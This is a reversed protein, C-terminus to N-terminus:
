TGKPGKKGRFYLVAATAAAAICVITVASVLLVSVRGGDIPELEFYLINGGWCADISRGPHANWDGWGTFNDTRWVYTGHVEVLPIYALDEYHVRQCDYVHEKRLEPDLSSISKNYSDEYDPNQYYNFNWSQGSRVSQAFLFGNPDPDSYSSLIIADWRFSISGLVAETMAIYMIDIGIKACESQLYIAVEKELPYKQWVGLDYQLPTDEFVLEHQVAYSDATCVRVVPSEPTCRYGAAELLANAADIDYRYVEQPTLEYHWEENVSPILTTGETALGDYCTDVITSRNTVMAIAQRIVPDLRSPNPGANNMNVMIFTKDQNPKPGTHTELETLLGELVREEVELYDDGPLQAVDIEGDELATRLATANDFKMIELKDFKVEVGRDAKWHYNPNKVLTIKDGAMFEEIIEDTAMFPGSGVLPPTTYNFSGDWHFGIEASSLNQLLHKPLIPFYLSGAFAVPIPEETTRDYFHIRVTHEDVKEAYNIFYAISYPALLQTYSLARHNVTFIVDDATLKTDDHWRANPTIEYEWVSGYPEFDEAIEWRLALNPTVELDNGVGQLCDYVLGFFMKASDTIAVNPNMSNIGDLFGIRLCSESSAEAHLPAVLYTMGAIAITFAITV